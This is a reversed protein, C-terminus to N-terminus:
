QTNKAREDHAYYIPFRSFGIFSQLSIYLIVALDNNPNIKGTLPDFANPVAMLRKTLEQIVARYDPKVEIIQGPGIPSYGSSFGPLYEGGLELFHKRVNPWYDASTIEVQQAVREKAKNWKGSYGTTNLGKIADEETIM